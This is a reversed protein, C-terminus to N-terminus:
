GLKTASLTREALQSIHPARGVCSPPEMHEMYRNNVWELHGWMYVYIYIYIYIYIYMYMYMCMYVYIYIYIYIYICM